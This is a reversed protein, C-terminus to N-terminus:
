KDVLKFEVTWDAPIKDVVVMNYDSKLDTCRGCQYKTLQYVVSKSGKDRTIKRLIKMNCYGTVLHSLVTQKSFNIEKRRAYFAVSDDANKCIDDVSRFVVERTSGLTVDPIERIIGDGNEDPGNCKKNCNTLSLVILPFLLPFAFFRRRM